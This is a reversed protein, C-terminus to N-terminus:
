AGFGTVLSGYYASGDFYLSVIDVAGATTSLTPITNYAWKITAPWETQVNGAGGQLLKLTLGVPGLPNTFSWSGSNTVLNVHAKNSAKWDIAISKGSSAVENVSGFAVGGNFQVASGFTATGVVSLNGVTLTGSIEDSSNNVKTVLSASLADLQTQINGAIGVLQNLAGATASMESNLNPLTAVLAGKILRLHDDGSSLNDGGAPYTANLQSIFSASEVPM